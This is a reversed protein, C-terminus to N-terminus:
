WERAQKYHVSSLGRLREAAQEATIDRQPTGLMEYGVLFKRVTASRLLPPYFHAHFHWHAWDGEATPRVHFGASYPFSVHFLNDYRVTLAHLADALADREDTTLDTMAGVHRRSIIMTEFPWVAWFPVLVAFHANLHILREGSALEAELYDALLSRRHQQWYARQTADELSIQQPLHETAWIQGHPHPNSAGMMAGRNEFVLVYSINPLAALEAYQRCWEDVVLRIAPTEMEALTLDHRPSFCVVRATGRESEARLLPHPAHTGYPTEPLLAPFDNTFVYTSAYEPNQEGNARVNSPCLYCQPDYEPRVEAPPTEIQGQWPRKTRHPSVLIWEGSLPNFRRHPHDSLSFAM